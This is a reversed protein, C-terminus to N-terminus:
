YYITDGGEGLYFPLVWGARIGYLLDLRSGEERMLEDTNWDRRSETFGQMFELGVFFNIRRHTSFHQYGVFEKLALGNTLRDYGKLYEGRLAPVSITPDNQIRIKHQLIGAGISLRLGSRPNGALLPILKGMSAGMWLGRERLLVDAPGGDNGIIYGEPSRLPALVDPKVKNGFLFQGELEIMWNSPLFLQLGTGISFNAGFREQLDGGPIQFGYSLQYGLITGENSTYVPKQAVLAAPISALLFLFLYLPQRKRSM